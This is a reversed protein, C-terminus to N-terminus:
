SRGRDGRNWVVVTVWLRHTCNDTKDVPWRSIGAPLYVISRVPGLKTPGACRGSTPRNKRAGTPRELERIPVLVVNTHSQQKRSASLLSPHACTWIFPALLPLCSM